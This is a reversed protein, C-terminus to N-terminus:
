VVVAGAESVALNYGASQADNYFMKVTDLSYDSLDYGILSLKNLIASTVTIIHCGIQEAQLINLLERPSAWILEAMPNNSLLDVSAQMIPVPDCGTDAIRGAFVSVYSPVSTSLVSAVEEVQQLTMIATVNVKVNKEVLRKILGCSSERKTNTIPIKVYVNEGWSAIELAQREMEAFDDSFVEFSISKDSITALIDKCFDRYDTIGAKKMLTPNTTLGHIYPKSYMSLMDEKDAGDSFIKVKLQELVQM